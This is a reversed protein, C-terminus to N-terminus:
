NKVTLLAISDESVSYVDYGSVRLFNLLAKTRTDNLHVLEFFIIKPMYTTIDSAYIVQDDFGETDIQLVDIEGKTGAKELISELGFSSTTFTTIAREPNRDPMHKKLWSVVHDKNSSAVGTPARYAPWGRERAYSVDLQEWYEEKVGYLTITSEPGVAANVIHKDPHFRYNEELYPILQRQPEILVVTNKRKTTALYEYLPDNNKGDNAGVVVVKLNESELADVLQHYDLSQVAEAAQWRAQATQELEVEDLLALNLVGKPLRQYGYENLSGSKALLTARVKLSTLAQNTVWPHQITADLVREDTKHGLLEVEATLKEATEMGEIDREARIIGNIYLRSFKGGKRVLALHVWQKTNFYKSPNWTHLVVAKCGQGYFFQATTRNKIRLCFENETDSLFKGAIMTWVSPWSHLKLWLGFSLDGSLDLNSTNPLTLANKEQLQPTLFLEADMGLSEIQQRIRAKHLQVPLEAGHVTKASEIFHRFAGEGDGHLARAKGLSTQLSSLLAKVVEARNQKEPSGALSLLTPRAQDLRGTQALGIAKYLTVQKRDAPSTTAQPTLESLAEWDGLEWLRRIYDVGQGCVPEVSKNNESPNVM